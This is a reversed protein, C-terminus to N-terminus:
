KEVKIEQKTRKSIRIKVKKGDKEIFKYGVRTPKNDTSDILMLNSIHIPREVQVITPKKQEPNPSKVHKKVKNIGQITVRDGVVKVVKGVEGKNRGSIVLVKDGKRIKM